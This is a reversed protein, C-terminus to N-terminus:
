TSSLRSTQTSNRKKILNESTNPNETQTKRRKRHHTKSRHNCVIGTSLDIDKLTLWTLEIPRQGLDKSMSLKLAMEIRAHNILFDVLEEKPPKRKKHIKPLLTKGM